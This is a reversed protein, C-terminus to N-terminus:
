FSIALVGGVTSASIKPATDGSFNFTLRGYGNQLAGSVSDAAWAPASVCLAMVLVLNRATRIM